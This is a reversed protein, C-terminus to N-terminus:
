QGEGLKMKLQEIDHNLRDIEIHSRLDEIDENKFVSQNAIRELADAIRKLQEVTGNSKNIKDTYEM